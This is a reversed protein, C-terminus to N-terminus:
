LNAQLCLSASITALIQISHYMHWSGLDSVLEMEHKYRLVIGRM